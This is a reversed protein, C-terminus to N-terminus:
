LSCDKRFDIAWLGRLHGAIYQLIFFVKDSMSCCPLDSLYSLQSRGLLQVWNPNLDDIKWGTHGQFKITSRLFCHPVEEINRWAKHMIEFGHTFEFQFREIRTLIPSKKQGTHGQFTISSRSFCYPVEEISSSAKYVM